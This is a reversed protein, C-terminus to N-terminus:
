GEPFNRLSWATLGDSYPGARPCTRAAPDPSPIFTPPATSVCATSMTNMSGCLFTTSSINDSRTAATIPVPTVGRRIRGTMTTSTSEVTITRPGATSSGFISIGPGFHNYVVDLIVAIGHRHARKVFKKFALPGGYALEVSFIHAPNYGWSWKGAFQAIPMIQIANVGLKKLHRLRSSVSAFKGPLNNNERDNFTGVHLEYIVLENRAALHFDDGEWDFSPDHVIANGVSHTVERAYPDIRKFEGKATTLLYRYQDGIHAEAVDTFWHGNEEAQMPHKGGDWGNFSGIVSVRQANPAWVRFGVGGTHPIAGMSKIKTDGSM